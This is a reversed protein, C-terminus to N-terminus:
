HSHVGNRRGIEAYATESTKRGSSGAGVRVQVKQVGSAQNIAHYRVPIGKCSCM